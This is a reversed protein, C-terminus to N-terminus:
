RPLRDLDEQTVRGLANEFESFEEASLNAKYGSLSTAQEAVLRQALPKSIRLIKALDDASARHLPVCLEFCPPDPRFPYVCNCRPEAIASTATVAIGIAALISSCANSTAM